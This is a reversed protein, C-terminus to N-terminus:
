VKFRKIRKIWLVNRLEQVFNSCNKKDQTKAIIIKTRIKTLFKLM